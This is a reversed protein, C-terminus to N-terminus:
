RRPPSISPAANRIRARARSSASAYPIRLTRTATVGAAASAATVLAALPMVVALIWGRQFALQAGALFAFALMAIAPAAVRPSPIVGAVAAMCALLLIAFIDLLVSVDRLPVGRLLTDVANAQVEPGSMGRGKDLPTRHVDQGPRIVGVVVVKGAFAGAPVHGNLVQLAPV